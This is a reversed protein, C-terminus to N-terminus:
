QVETSALTNLFEEQGLESSKDSNLEDEVDANLTSLSYANILVVM